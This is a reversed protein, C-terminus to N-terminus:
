PLRLRTLGEDKMPLYPMKLDRVSTRIRVSTISFVVRRSSMEDVSRLAGAVILWPKAM